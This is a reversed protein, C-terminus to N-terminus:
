LGQYEVGVQPDFNAACVLRLRQVRRGQQVSLRPRNPGQSQRDKKYFPISFRVHVSCNIPWLNRYEIQRYYQCNIQKLCTTTHTTSSLHATSPPGQFTARVLTATEMTPADQWFGFEWFLQRWCPRLGTEILRHPAAFNMQPRTSSVKTSSRNPWGVTKWFDAKAHGVLALHVCKEWLNGLGHTLRYLFSSDLCIEHM